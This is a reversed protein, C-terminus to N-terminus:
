RVSRGRGRGTARRTTATTGSPTGANPAPSASRTSTRTSRRSASTSSPRTAAAAARRSCSRCGITYFYTKGSFLNESVIELLFFLNQLGKRKSLILKGPSSRNKYLEDRTAARATRSGTASSSTRRGWSRTATRVRSISCHFHSLCYKNM